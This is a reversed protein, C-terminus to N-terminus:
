RGKAKSPSDRERTDSSARVVDNGNYHMEDAAVADVDVDILM